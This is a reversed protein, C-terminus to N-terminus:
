CDTRHDDYNLFNVNTTICGNKMGGYNIKNNKEVETIKINSIGALAKMRDKTKTDCNVSLFIEELKNGSKLSLEVSKSGALLKKEKLAEFLKEIM